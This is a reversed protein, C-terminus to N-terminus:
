SLSMMVGIFSVVLVAVTAILVMATTQLWAPRQDGARADVTIVRSVSKRADMRMSM